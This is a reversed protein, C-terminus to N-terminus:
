PLSQYRLMKGVGDSTTVIDAKKQLKLNYLYQCLSNLTANSVQDDDTPSPVIGHFILHLWKKGSVAQDVLSKLKAYTTAKKVSVVNIAWRNFSAPENFESDETWAQRSCKIFKSSALAAIVRDDFEGFPPAFAGQTIIGNKVFDSEADWVEAVIQDSSLNLLHSHGKTHNGIEWGSWYMSWLQSWNMHDDDGIYSSVIFLTGVLGYRQLIPYANQSFLAEGDDFSLTVMGKDLTRAYLATGSFLLIGIALLVLLKKM